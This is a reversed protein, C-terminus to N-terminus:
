RCRVLQNNDHQIHPLSLAVDQIFRRGDKWYGATPRLDPALGVFYRNISEVLLERVYKSVMSALSVPLFREDADVAFHVRIKRGAASLEYSSVAASEDIIRLEMDGFMRELNRRYRIRGGQRDVIIQLEDEECADYAGKILTSVATFLVSSKNKVATMMRNYYAVDLCVCGIDLLRMGHSALDKKLVSSAIAIDAADACLQRDGAQRYWPYAALRDLLDPCVSRLLENTTTVKTGLCELCALVTRELHKIGVSRSYAKKSDTILLRGGRQARKSAVSKGLFRWLDAKLLRRPVSFVSSSVVMPGLIPGFGAEDIGVLIAM